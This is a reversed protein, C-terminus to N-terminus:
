KRWLITGSIVLGIVLIAIIGFAILYYFIEYKTLNILRRKKFKIEGKDFTDNVAIVQEYNMKNGVSTDSVKEVQEAIERKESFTEFKMNSIEQRYRRYKEVRTMNFRLPSINDCLTM